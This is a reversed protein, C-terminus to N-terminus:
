LPSREYHIRLEKQLEQIDTIILLHEKNSRVLGKKALKELERSATERTMNISNAIDKHAIPINLITEKGEKKGFRKALFLLRAILRPYAKTLELNDVRDVHIDLVDIIRNALNFLLSCSKEPSCNTQLFKLFEQRPAIKLVVNGLAEYYVSKSVNRFVWIWPFIEGSKYIIHLKEDGDETISYIKVYGKEIYYVGAPENDPRLIIEGSKYYRPKGKIFFRSLCDYEEAM